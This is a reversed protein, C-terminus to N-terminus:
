DDRQGAEENCVAFAQSVSLAAMLSENKSLASGVKEGFRNEDHEAEAKQRGSDSRRKNRKLGTTKRTARRTM